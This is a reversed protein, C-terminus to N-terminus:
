VRTHSRAKNRLQSVRQSSVHMIKAIDVGSLGAQILDRVVRRSRAASERVARDAAAVAERAAQIAEDLGGGLEPKIVVDDHATDQDTLSEIYDRVMREAGGLNRSQTVGVGDIHLEWGHVWRKARVTYTTMAAM